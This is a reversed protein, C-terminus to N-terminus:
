KRLNNIRIFEEGWRFYSAIKSAKRQFGTLFLSAIIAEASNLKEWKGYNIPNAAILSPLKRPNKTEPIKKNLIKNWSCDIVMLGYKIILDRDGKNIEKSSFPNLVVCNRLSGRIKPIFKIIKLKKLKLATCKDPDCDGYHLCYIKIETM